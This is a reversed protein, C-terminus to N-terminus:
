AVSPASKVTKLTGDFSLEVDEDTVNGDKDSMFVQMALTGGGRNIIDEMKHLHYHMPTVQGELSIMAKEAYLKPYKSSNLLGNRVSFLILGCKEFDGKGFDTIDWGLLVDMIESINDKNKQWDKLKYYGFKPLKFKYDAFFKLSDEIIKNIESRKM